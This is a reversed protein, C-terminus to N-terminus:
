RCPAALGSLLGFVDGPSPVPMGGLPGGAKLRIVYEAWQLPRPLHGVRAAIARLESVFAIDCPTDSGPGATCLDHRMCAADFADVPAPWGGRPHDIGCWNGYIPVCKFAHTQTAATILLLGGLCALIVARNM